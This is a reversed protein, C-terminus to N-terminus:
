SLSTSTHFLVKVLLRTTRFRGQSPFAHYIKKKGVFLHRTLRYHVDVLRHTTWQHCGMVLNEVVEKLWSVPKQIDITGWIPAPTIVPTDRLSRNWLVM